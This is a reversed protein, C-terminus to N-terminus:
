RYCVIFSSGLLVRQERNFCSSGTPLLIPGPHTSGSGEERFLWLSPLPLYRRNPPVYFVTWFGDEWFVPLPDWRRSTFCLWTKGGQIESFFFFPVEKISVFISLEELVVTRGRMTHSLPRGVIYFSSLSSTGPVGTRRFSLSPNM